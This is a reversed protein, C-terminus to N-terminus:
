LDLPVALILDGALAVLRDLAAQLGSDALEALGDGGAVLLGCAGQGALGVALQVLSSGLTDDVLVLGRVALRGDALSGGAESTWTGGRRRGEGVPSPRRRANRPRCRCMLRVPPSRGRVPAR